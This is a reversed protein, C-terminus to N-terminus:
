LRGEVGIGIERPDGATALTPNFLYTLYFKDFVNRAYGFLRFKGGDWEARADIKTWGDIRRTAIETDDSFYGSNHRIQASLRLQNVPRWDVAASASFKPSRQFQKGEFAAGAAGAETIKTSLLGLSAQATFRRSLRWDITTEMGYTRAKPVNFLDAFTVPAGTPAIIVIPRSRQADHQDYYFLNGSLGLSGTLGARVFLEYDWLTEADFNDPAGTDFRLTTGGPNYARQVLLGARLRPTFDYALSAKPLFADFSRDYDLGIPANRTQLAGIREQRDHQYRIGGSLKLRDTLSWQAEGFLGTSSQRDRFRGIGSLQSLNIFQRLRTGYQSVGAVVHISDSAAWNAVTEGSWDRVHLQTEGLGPPAYRRFRSDGGTLVATMELSKAATYSLRATVADVNTRFTGYGDLLDRREQFPPRIGEIQPMQSQSHTYNLLLRMGPLSAPDALLKFRLLGYVDHNPDAGAITDAIASSTRSYRFDGAVRWALQDGVLPGGGVASIQRTHADGAIGRGRFEWAYTPDETTVFIAGAISNRGQTTTQPTRFVEVQRVDWMPSIGFVFENLAAARGDVILTTRPRTGGLFSPLDRAAGTTDQGRITPGEGGSSVQVNPILDLIQEIRDASAAEIQQRTVVDVSSATERVSRTVREGTVVIAEPQDALVAAQVAAAAAISLM